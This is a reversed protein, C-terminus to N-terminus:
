AELRGRPIIGPSLIGVYCIQNIMDNLVDKVQSQVAERCTKSQRHRAINTRSCMFGCLNCEIIQKKHEKRKPNKDRKKDYEKVGGARHIAGPVKKNVCSDWNSTIYQAEKNQLERKTNCPYNELLQYAYTGSEIISRSECTKDNKHRSMRAKLTRVTSGYYVKYVPATTNWIIYTKGNKFNPM